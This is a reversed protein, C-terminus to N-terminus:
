CSVNDCIGNVTRKSSIDADSNANAMKIESVVNESCQVAAALLENGTSLEVVMNSDADDSVKSSHSGLSNRSDQQTILQESLSCSPKLHQFCSLNIFRMNTQKKLQAATAISYGFDVSIQYCCNQM